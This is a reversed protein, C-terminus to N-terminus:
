VVSKRDTEPRVQLVWVRGMQRRHTTPDADLLRQELEHALGQNILEGSSDYLGGLTHILASTVTGGVRPRAELLVVRAASRSASIAAAMGAAGGGAIVVLQREM